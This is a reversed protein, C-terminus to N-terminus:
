DIEIEVIECEVYKERCNVDILWNTENQEIYVDDDNEDFWGNEHEQEFLENIKAQAQELTSFGKTLIESGKDANSDWELTIVYVKM